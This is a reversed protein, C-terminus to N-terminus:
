AWMGLTAYFKKNPKMIEISLLNGLSILDEM